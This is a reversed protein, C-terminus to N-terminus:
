ITSLKIATYLYTKFSSRGSFAGRDLYIDAFADEAAEEATRVSGTYRVLYCILANKYYLILEEFASNDNDGALFRAIDPEHREM